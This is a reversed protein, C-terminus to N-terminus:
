KAVMNSKNNTNNNKEGLRSKLNAPPSINKNNNSPPTKNEKAGEDEGELRIKVQFSKVQARSGRRSMTRGVQGSGRRLLLSDIRADSGRRATMAGGNVISGRRSGATGDDGGYVKSLSNKRKM